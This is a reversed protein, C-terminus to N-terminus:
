VMDKKRSGKSQFGTKNRSTFSSRCVKIKLLLESKPEFNLQNTFYKVWLVFYIMKNFLKAVFRGAWKKGEGANSVRPRAM